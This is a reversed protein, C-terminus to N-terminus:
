KIVSYLDTRNPRHVQLVGHQTMYELAKFIQEQEAWKMNNAIVKASADPKTRLFEIIRREVKSKRSAAFNRFLVEIVEGQYKALAVAMCIHGPMILPEGGEYDIAAFLVGNRHVNMPLRKLTDAVYGDELGEMRDEHKYFFEELVEYAPKSYDFKLVKQHQQSKEQLKARLKGLQTICKGFHTHDRQRHLPLTKIKEPLYWEFRNTFGGGIYEAGFSAELLVINSAGTLTLTPYKASSSKVKTPSDFDDRQDYLDMLVELIGASNAKLAKRLLVGFENITAMVRVSERKYQAAKINEVQEYDLNEAYGGVYTDILDDTNDDKIKIKILRPEVFKDILGEPTALQSLHQVNQDAAKVLAVAQSLSVGKRANSSDGVLCAFHSPYIPPDTKIMVSRGLVAAVAQKATAFMYSNPMPIRDVFSQRYHYFFGGCHAKEFLAEPFVPLDTENPDAIDIEQLETPPDSCPRGQGKHTYAESNRIGYGDKFGQWTSRDGAKCSHHSCHFAFKADSNVFVYADKPKCVGNTHHEAYPCRVFYKESQKPCAEYEIGHESLFTDLRKETPPPKSTSAPEPEPEEPPMPYDALKLVNGCIAFKNFGERANGFVPQAPSREISPIIPYQESLALLIAHYHKESQIPTDFLFIIRYRRHPPPKDESMSSVSQGVAFATEKLSPYRESLGNDETWYEIGDPTKDQGDPLFEVGKLNDADCCVFHTSRWHKIAHTFSGDDTPAFASPQITHGQELKAVWEKPTLAVRTWGFLNQSASQKSHADQISHSSILLGPYKQDLVPNTQTM